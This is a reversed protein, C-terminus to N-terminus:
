SPPPEDDVLPRDKTEPAFGAALVGIIYILAFQQMSERFKFSSVSQLYAFLFLGGAAVYRAVNYCFGTGTSRLRTPYLEPFYIAYMGFCLLTFFGLLPTMWYIQDVREMYRFVAISALMAATFSIAFTKRRGLGGTLSGILSCLFYFACSIAAGLIASGWGGDSRHWFAISVGTCVVLGVSSALARSRPAGQTLLSVALIGLFAGVDQLAMALSLINPDAVIGRILEPTWFGIGWLGIVGSSALLVGIITSRRWRGQFLDGFSGLENPPARSAPTASADRATSSARVEGVAMAPRASAKLKRWSEPEELRRRIAVVLLSPLIGVFYLWRWHDWEMAPNEPPLIVKGILAGLINGLASLAQLLGLAYPRARPPMVEAVLAAGAAFEGGVGLGTLFRYISYDVWSVSFASLGTFVAYVLITIMMTFARGMKDALIGFFLGGTAWGALFIAVAVRGIAQAHSPQPLFDVAGGADPPRVFPIKRTPGGDVAPPLELFARRVGAAPQEPQISVAANALPGPELGLLKSAEGCTLSGAAMRDFDGAEVRTSLLEDLASPRSLVFIRQDMVDFLWGLGAVILVWWMYPTLGKWWPGAPSSMSAPARSSGGSMAENM